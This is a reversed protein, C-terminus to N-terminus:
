VVFEVFLLNVNKRQKILLIKSFTQHAFNPFKANDHTHGLCM